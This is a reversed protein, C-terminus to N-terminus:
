VGLLVTRLSQSNVGWHREASLSMLLLADESLASKDLWVSSLLKWTSTHWALLFVCLHTPVMRKWKCLSDLCLECVGLM